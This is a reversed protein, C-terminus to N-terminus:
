MALQLCIAATEFVTTDDGLELALVRGLFYRRLREASRRHVGAIETLEYRGGVEELLWLVRSSRTRPTYHFRPRLAPGSM